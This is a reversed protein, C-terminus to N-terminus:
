PMETTWTNADFVTANEYVLSFVANDADHRQNKAFENMCKAKGCIICTM